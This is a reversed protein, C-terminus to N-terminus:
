FRIDDIRIRANHQTSTVPLIIIARTLPSNIEVSVTQVLADPAIPFRREITPGDVLVLLTADRDGKGDKWPAVKMSVTGVGKLGSINIYNDFRQAGNLVFSRNGSIPSSNLDDSGIVM